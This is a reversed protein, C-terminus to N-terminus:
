GITFTEGVRFTQSWRFTKLDVLTTQFCDATLTLSPHGWTYLVRLLRVAGTPGSPYSHVASCDLSNIRLVFTACSYQTQSKGVVFSQNIAAVNSKKLVPVPQGGSPIDIANSFSTQPLEIISNSPHGQINSSLTGLKRGPAEKKARKAAPPFCQKMVHATTMFGKATKAIHKGRLPLSRTAM